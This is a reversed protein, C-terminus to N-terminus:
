DAIWFAVVAIIALVCAWGAALGLLTRRGPVPIEWHSNPFFVQRPGPEVGEPLTCSTEIKEDPQVPTRLLNYFKELRKIDVPKTLLSVVIGAAFGAGIYFLMQWPLFMTWEGGKMKVVGWDVLTPVQALAGTVDPLTTLWWTLMAALTAAWAGAVTARRWFIGLWFAMALMTNIKWLNELMPIVGEALFALAVGGLVAVLGAVRAVRLYHGDPRGPRVPRYLNETVLGSSAVMFSDCSGMVTALLGALFLGLLGAPLFDRAVQGYILDPNTLSGYYALAALGTLSWAVTCIRKIMTGGMFGIAGEAETKGAACTGMNQPQVAVGLLANFAVVIIFFVGIDGPAVLSMFNEGPHQEFLKAKMGAMGGVANLVLPLLLFSFLITLLGQIFDTVIAATLGGALGYAVFLVTIVLITLNAPMQGGTAAEIIVASGKLMLGINVMFKGLGIVAYLGAVSKDYRAAFVDGTTLARFRRMMPAILWFFPTVFLWQWSYWIGSLGSTASKSAVGVAQESHTATGLGHMLMMAKGFRRPMIFESTTRVRRSAWVGLVTIGMLYILLVALDLFHLGFM